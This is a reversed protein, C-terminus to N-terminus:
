DRNHSAKTAASCLGKQRGPFFEYDQQPFLVPCWCIFSLFLGCHLPALHTIHVIFVLSTPSVSYFSLATSTDAPLIKSPTAIWKTGSLFPYLVTQFITCKKWNANKNHQLYFLMHSFILHYSRPSLLSLFYHLISYSSFAPSSRSVLSNFFNQSEWGTKLLYSNTAEM